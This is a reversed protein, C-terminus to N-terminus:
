KIAKKLDTAADIGTIKALKDSYLRQGLLTLLFASISTLPGITAMIVRLAEENDTFNSVIWYLLFGNAFKDFLSYAGYVFASSESETGIVDSILSTGTNLM